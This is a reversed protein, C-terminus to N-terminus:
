ERGHFTTETTPLVGRVVTVGRPFGTTEQFPAFEREEM